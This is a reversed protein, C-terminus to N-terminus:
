DNSKGTTLGVITQLKRKQLNYIKNGLNEGFENILFQNM